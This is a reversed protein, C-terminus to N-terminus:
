SMELGGFFWGFFLKIHQEKVCVNLQVGSLGIVMVFM